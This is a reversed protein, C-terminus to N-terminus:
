LDDDVPELLASAILNKMGRSLRNSVARGSIDFQKGLEAQSVRRPQDFYGERYAALLTERQEPTLPRDGDVLEAFNYIRRLEVPIDQESFLQQFAALRERNKARVRFMWEESSGIATLITANLAKIGGIISAEPTWTARFLAGNDVEALVDVNAIEPETQIRDCFVVPDAGFMWFFPLAASGTPIIRELEITAEPLEGLTRGGPVADAPIVFEAVISM